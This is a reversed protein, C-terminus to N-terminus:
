IKVEPALPIREHPVARSHIVRASERVYHIDCEGFVEAYHVASDRAAKCDVFPVARTVGSDRFTLIAAVPTM